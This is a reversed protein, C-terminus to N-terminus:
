TLTQCVGFLLKEVLVIEFFIGEDYLKIGLGVWVKLQKRIHGLLMNFYCMYVRLIEGDM